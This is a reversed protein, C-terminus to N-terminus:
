KGLSRALRFGCRELQRDPVLSGRSASRLGWTSRGWGGGRLVRHTGNEPGKPDTSINRSYFNEDYWDNVWEYVNGYIDYLGWPNPQKQGVPHTQNDSNDDYWAYQESESADDGFSWTSSTGARAAYEWEAETPLRYKDTGEKTNLQQIFVQIDDWSVSEVPNRLGVFKSPNNGMVAVWQEQTVEYKGLYFAHSLTVHHQPLEDNSAEELNKDAGMQFSGAPIRIFEIGVLNTFTKDAQATTSLPLLTAFSLLLGQALRRCFCTSDFM